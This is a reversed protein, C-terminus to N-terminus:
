DVKDGPGYERSEAESVSSRAHDVQDGTGVRLPEEGKITQILMVVVVVFVLMYVTNIGVLSNIYGLLSPGRIREKLTRGERYGIIFRSIQTAQDEEYMTESGFVSLYEEDGDWVVMKPLVTKKNVGFTDTFDEYQKVGVYGFVLDRNASAAAKLLEIIKKSKEETEDEVITLVIKRRDEELSKLTDPNIPIALPFLNQKIFEELFEEEFPGYFINRENYVPHLSVLAPVKDFDYSVMIDESFDKAVSFWAKKKYKVALNSIMSEKMGFGIYIPFFAGAAEVFDSIASDSDLVSVDSTVFKKLYRVLLDAKRPGNYEVPVGHMFIKLTPYADIDHKKALRTYKDANVKAIVIPEKLSALIPAAEDLQPSLRKCHGCWPAYFDVLIFDFTSIASDFNSEDLELVKGNATLSQEGGVSSIPIMLMLFCLLMMLVRNTM